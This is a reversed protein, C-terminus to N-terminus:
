SRGYKDNVREIDAEDLIDGTQVEIFVMENEGDNKIRHWSTKPIYFADDGKGDYVTDGITVKANGKTIIWHESRYKHRQLSLIEGANVTIKKVIFGEGVDIVQWKGWPRQGEEGIKYKIDAM